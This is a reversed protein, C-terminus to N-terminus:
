EGAACRRWGGGEEYMTAIQGSAKTRKRKHSNRDSRKMPVVKVSPAPVAALGLASSKETHRVAPIASEKVYYSSFCTAALQSPGISGCFFTAFRNIHFSPFSCVEDERKKASMEEELMPWPYRRRKTPSWGARRDLKSGPRSPARGSAPCSPFLAFMRFLQRDTPRGPEAEGPNLVSLAPAPPSSRPPSPLGFM